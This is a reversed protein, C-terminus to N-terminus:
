RIFPHWKSWINASNLIKNNLKQNLIDSLVDDRYWLRSIGSQHQASQVVRIYEAITRLSKDYMALRTILESIFIGIPSYPAGYDIISSFRPDSHCSLSAECYKCNSQYESTYHLDGSEADSLVTRSATWTALDSVCLMDMLERPHYVSENSSNAIHNEITSLNKNVDSKWSHSHAVIGCIPFASLEGRPTGYKPTSQRKLESMSKMSKFIHQKKLTLKCEFVAAVAASFYKKKSHFGAPYNPKLVMVDFQSSLEGAPGVIQGKTVVTYNSPLWERLLSAWNEEGEDGATGPDLAASKRIREYESVMKESLQYVYDHIDHPM